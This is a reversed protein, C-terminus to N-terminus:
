WSTVIGVSPEMIARFLRAAFVHSFHQFDFIECLGNATLMPSWLDCSYGSAFIYQVGTGFLINQHLLFSVSFGVDMVVVPRVADGSINKPADCWSHARFGCHWCTESSFRGLCLTVSSEEMVFLGGETLEFRVELSNFTSQCWSSTPQKPRTDTNHICLVKRRHAPCLKPQPPFNSSKPAPWAWKMRCQFGERMDEARLSPEGEPLSNSQFAAKRSSSDQGTASGLNQVEPFPLTSLTFVGQTKKCLVRDLIPLEGSSDSIHRKWISDALSRWGCRVCVRPPSESVVMSRFFIGYTELFIMKRPLSIETQDPHIGFSALIPDKHVDVVVLRAAGRGPQQRWRKKPTMSEVPWWLKKPRLATVWWGWHNSEDPINKGIFDWDNTFLFCTHLM